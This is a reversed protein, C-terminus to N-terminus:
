HMLQGSLEVTEDLRVDGMGVDNVAVGDEVRVGEGEVFTVGGFELEM